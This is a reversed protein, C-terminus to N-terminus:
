DEEGRPALIFSLEFNDTKFEFRAPYENSYLVNVRDALKSAKAFKVLYDLSYKAKSVKETQIKVEDSSFETKSSHLTGKAEIVFTNPDVNFSCSDAVIAADNVIDLFNLSDIGVLSDFNFNSVKKEEGEVNILALRFTRKAKDEIHVKLSNDERELSLSASIPVRRLVQKFDELNLGLVEEKDVEFKSFTKTPIKLSVLAVNAPDVASIYFGDKTIKANVELVLESILSVIDTLIKPTDLKLLM